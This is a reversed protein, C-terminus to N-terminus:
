RIFAQPTTTRPPRTQFVSSVFIVFVTAFSMSNSLPHPTRAPACVPTTITTTRPPRTKVVSSASPM